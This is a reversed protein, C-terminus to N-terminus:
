KFSDCLAFVMYSPDVNLWLPGRASWAWKLKRDTPTKAERKKGGLGRISTIILLLITDLQM